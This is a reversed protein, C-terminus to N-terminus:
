RSYRRAGGIQQHLLSYRVHAGSATHVMTGTLFSDPTLVMPLTLHMFDILDVEHIQSVPIWVPLGEESERPEGEPSDAVFLHASIALERESNYQLLHARYSCNTVTLGSEEFVERIAAEEPSEGYEVLGGLGDWKGEFPPHNRHLLLIKEGRRVYCVSGVVARM